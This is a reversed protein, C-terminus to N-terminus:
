YLFDAIVFIKIKITKTNTNKICAYLTTKLCLFM